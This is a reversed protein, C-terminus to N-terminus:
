FVDSDGKAIRWLTPDSTFAETEASLARAGFHTLPGGPKLGLSGWLSGQQDGPAAWASLTTAGKEGFWDLAAALLADEAEGNEAGLELIDGILYGPGAFVKAAAWGRLEGSAGRAQWCSYNGDPRSSYRWHAWAGSRRLTVVAPPRVREWFADLEAPEPLGPLARPAEPADPMPGEFAALDGLDKWDLLRKLLPWSNDNPFAYLISLGAEACAATNAEGLDMFLPLGRRGPHIMLDTWLGARRRGAPTELEFSLAGLHAVVNGDEEAVTCVSPADPRGDYRWHRLPEPLARAHVAAFLARIGAADEPRAPRLRMPAM